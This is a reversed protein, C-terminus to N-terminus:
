VMKPFFVVALLVIKWPPSMGAVKIEASYVWGLEEGDDNKLEVWPEAQNPVKWFLKLMRINLFLESMVSMMFIFCCLWRCSYSEIGYEGPDVKEYIEKAKDPFLALIADRTFSRTKWSGYDYLRPPTIDTGHPGRCWNHGPCSSM